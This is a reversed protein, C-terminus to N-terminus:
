DVPDERRRGLLFGAVITLITGTLIYVVSISNPPTLAFIFFYVLIPAIQIPVQAVPVVNSAQAVKFALQNQWTVISAVMVLIVSAVTFIIIEAPTGHGLLVIAILALLPNIWFDSLCSLFGNALAILMGQRDKIRPVLSRTIISMALFSITFITIRQLANQDALTIRVQTSNIALGSLGLALIGLIMLVIGTIESANLTERNMRVSGVALIVLGSAMLGPTLAPGILSQALMYAVTGGGLGFIVGSLWTRSKVLRRFFGNERSDKRFQNVARKELLQGFQTLVGGLVGLAVGTLYHLDM